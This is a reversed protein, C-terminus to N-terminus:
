YNVVYWGLIFLKSFSKLSRFSRSFLLPCLNRPVEELVLAAFLLTKWTCYTAGYKENRQCIIFFFENENSSVIEHLNNVIWNAFSSAANRKESRGLIVFRDCSLKDCPPDMYGKSMYRYKLLFVRTFSLYIMWRIYTGEDTWVPRWECATFM